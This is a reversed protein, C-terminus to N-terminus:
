GASSRSADTETPPSLLLGNRWMANFAKNVTRSFIARMNLSDARPARPNAM